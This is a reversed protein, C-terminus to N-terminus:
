RYFQSGLSSRHFQEQGATDWIMLTVAVDNISLKKCFFDAGITTKRHQSYRNNVYREILSSKGVNAQGLVIVKVTASAKDQQGSM